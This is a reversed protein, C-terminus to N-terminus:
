ESFLRWIASEFESVKGAAPAIATVMEEVQRALARM